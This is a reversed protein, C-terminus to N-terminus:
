DPPIEFDTREIGRIAGLDFLIILAAVRVRALTDLAGSEEGKWPLTKDVLKGADTFDHAIGNRLKNFGRLIKEDKESPGYLGVYLSIKQNFSWQYCEM